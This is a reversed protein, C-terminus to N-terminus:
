MFTMTNDYCFDNYSKSCMFGQFKGNWYMAETKNSGCGCTCVTGSMEKTLAELNSSQFEKKYLKLDNPCNTITFNYKKTINLDFDQMIPNSYNGKIPNFTLPYQNSSDWADEDRRRFLMNIDKPLLSWDFNEITFERFPYKILDWKSGTICKGTEKNWEAKVHKNSTKCYYEGITTNLNEKIIKVIPKYDNNVVFIIRDKKLENNDYKLIGNSSLNIDYKKTIDKLIYSFMKDFLDFEYNLKSTVYNNEQSFKTGKKNLKKFETNDDLNSLKKFTLFKNKSDGYKEENEENIDQYFRETEKTFAVEDYFKNVIVSIDMHYLEKGIEIKLNKYGVKNKVDLETLSESVVNWLEQNKYSWLKHVLYSTGDLVKNKEMYENKLKETKEMVKKHFHKLVEVIKKYESKGEELKSQEEKKRQVLKKSKDIEQNHKTNLNKLEDDTLFM